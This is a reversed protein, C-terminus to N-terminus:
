LFLGSTKLLSDRCTGCHSQPLPAAASPHVTKIFWRMVPFINHFFCSKKLSLSFSNLKIQAENMMENVLSMEVNGNLFMLVM